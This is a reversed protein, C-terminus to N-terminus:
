SVAYYPIVYETDGIKFKAYGTPTAPLASAGGAAGVTAQTPVRFNITGTGSPDMDIDSNSLFTQIKNGNLALNSDVRIFSAELNNDGGQITVNGTFTTTAASVSLNDGGTNITDVNLDGTVDVGATVTAIKASNDYYLTVAGDDVFTAMTEAGDAGGLIDVQSGQIKLNGTGEDVIYSHNGDHYIKFDDGDGMQHKYSDGMSTDGVFVIEGTGNPDLQINGNSNDSIISQGSISINQGSGAGTASYLENFNDNVKDFATRLPDGTGDNASSGINITQKAM